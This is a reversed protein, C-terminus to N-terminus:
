LSQYTFSLKLLIVKVTGTAHTCQQRGWFYVACWTWRKTDWYPKRDKLRTWWLGWPVGLSISFVIFKLISSWFYWSLTDLTESAQLTKMNQWSFTAKFASSYIHIIKSTGQSRKVYIEKLYNSAVSMACRYFSWIYSLYFIFHCM